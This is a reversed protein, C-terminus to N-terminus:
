NESNLHEAFALAISYFLTPGINFFHCDLLSMILLSFVSFAIFIIDSHRKQWFMGITQLRHVSYCLLGVLGCSALLQIVTNHWRAPLVAKIQEVTSWEQIKDSSPYFGEGFIPNDLFIRLGEPYLQERMRPNLGRERLETFMLNLQSHFIFLLVVLVLLILGNFQLFAKQQTSDKLVVVM